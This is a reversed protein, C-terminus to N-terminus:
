NKRQLKSILKEAAAKLKNELSSKCITAIESLEEGFRDQKAILFLRRDFGPPPLKKVRICSLPHHAAFLTSPRTIAWGYGAEILGMMAEDSDIECRNDFSLKM